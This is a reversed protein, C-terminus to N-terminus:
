VGESGFAHTVAKQMAARGQADGLACRLHVAVAMALFTVAEGGGGPAVSLEDSADNVIQHARKARELLPPAAPAYFPVVEASM